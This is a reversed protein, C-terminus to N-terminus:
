RAVTTPKHSYWHVFTGLVLSACSDVFGCPTLDSFSGLPRDGRAHSTTYLTFHLCSSSSNYDLKIKREEVSLHMHSKMTWPGNMSGMRAEWCGYSVWLKLQFIEIKGSLPTLDVLLYRILLGIVCWTLFCSSSSGLDDLRNKKVQTAKIVWM